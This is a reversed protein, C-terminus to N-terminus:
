ISLLNAEAVHIIFCGYLVINYEELTIYKSDLADEKLKIEINLLIDKGNFEWKERDLVTIVYKLRDNEDQEIKVYSEDVPSILIDFEEFIVAEKELGVRMEITNNEKLALYVESDINVDRLLKGYYYNIGNNEFSNLEYLDYLRNKVVKWKFEAKGKVIRFDYCNSGYTDHYSTSAVFKFNKNPVLSIKFESSGDPIVTDTHFVVDTGEIEKEILATDYEFTFPQSLWWESLSRVSIFNGDLKYPESYISMNDCEGQLYVYPLEIEGENFILKADVDELIEYNDNEETFIYKAKVDYTGANYTKTYDAFVWKGIDEIILEDTLKEENSDNNEDIGDSCIIMKIGEPKFFTSTGNNVNEFDAFTLDCTKTASTSINYTFLIEQTKDYMEVKAKKVEVDIFDTYTLNYNGYPAIKACFKYNNVNLLNTSYVPELKNENDYERVSKNEDFVEGEALKLYYITYNDKPIITDGNKLDIELAEYKTGYNFENMKNNLTNKINFSYTPNETSLKVTVRLTCSFGSYTYTVEWVGSDLSNSNIKGVFEHMEKSVNNATDPTTYIISANLEKDNTVDKTSNDSYVIELSYNKLCETDGYDLDLYANGEEIGNVKVTLQNITHSGGGCSTIILLVVFNICFSLFLLFVNKKNLM